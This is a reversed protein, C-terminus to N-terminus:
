KRVGFRTSRVVPWRWWMFHISPSARRRISSPRARRSPGPCDIGIDTIADPEGGYARLDAAFTAFTQADRGPTAFLM